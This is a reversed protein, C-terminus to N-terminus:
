LKIIYALSYYPPMNNHPVDDGLYNTFITTADVSNRSGGSGASYNQGFPVNAVQFRHRPMESITLTHAKEGGVSGIPYNLGAGLIFKDRLDPRGDQGDCLAYGFPITSMSGSWTVIIGAPLINNVKDNLLKVSKATALKSEDDLDFANTKEHPLDKFNLLGKFRQVTNWAIAGVGNGFAAYRTIFVDKSLGNEFLRTVGEERIIINSQEIGGKFQLVEGAIVIVGDSVNAGTKICGSLVYNDGVIASFAQLFKYASQMFDLTDTELPFGGAQQLNVNNM